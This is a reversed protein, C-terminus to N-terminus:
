SNIKENNEVIGLREYWRQDFAQTGNGNRHRRIKQVVARVVACNLGHSFGETQQWERRIEKAREVVITKCPAYVQQGGLAATFEEKEQVRIGFDLGLANLFQQAPCFAIRANSDAFGSLARAFM